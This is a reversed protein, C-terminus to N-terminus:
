ARASSAPPWRGAVRVGRQPARGSRHLGRRGHVHHARDDRGVDDPAYVFDGFTGLPRGAMPSCSALWTTTRAPRSTRRPGGARDAHLRAPHAGHRAGGAPRRRERRSHTRLDAPRHHLRVGPGGGDVILFDGGFSMANSFLALAVISASLFTLFMGGRTFAENYALSRSALLSWHETSLIQVVRQDTLDTIPDEVPPLAPRAPPM